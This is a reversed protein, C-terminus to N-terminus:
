QSWPPVIENARAYAILQGLHEHQHDAAILALRARPATMGFFKIEEAMAGATVGKIAKKVHKASDNYIKIMEAKDAGEGLAQPDVGEPMEHGLKSGIFYNASAVHMLVERVSSVGEMPMYGYKDAPIADALQGIKDQAAGLSMVILQNTLPTEAKDHDGHHAAFATFPISLATVVALTKAFQKM